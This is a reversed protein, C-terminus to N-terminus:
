LLEYVIQTVTLATFEATNDYVPAFKVLDAGVVPLGAQSLVNLVRLLERTTTLNQPIRV